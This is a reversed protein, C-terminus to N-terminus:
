VEYQKQILPLLIEDIANSLEQDPTKKYLTVQVTGDGNTIVSHLSMKFNTKFVMGRQRLKVRIRSLAVRMRQVYKAAFAENGELTFTYYQENYKAFLQLQEKASLM